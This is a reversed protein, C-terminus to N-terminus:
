RAPIEFPMKHARRVMTRQYAKGSPTKSAQPGTHTGAESGVTYSWDLNYLAGGGSLMWAWYTRRFATLTHNSAAAMVAATPGMSDLTVPAAFHAPPALYGPAAASTCSSSAGCSVVLRGGRGLPGAQLALAWARPVVVLRAPDAAVVAAVLKAGWGLTPGATKNAM